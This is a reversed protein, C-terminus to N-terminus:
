CSSMSDTLTPRTPAPCIFQTYRSDDDVYRKLFAVMSSIIDSNYSKPTEHTAGAIEVYERPTTAPLGNYFPKGQNAPVSTADATGSVILTPTTITSVPATRTGAADLYYPALGIAAKFDHNEAVAGLTGGGGLSFGALAIRTPDLRGQVSPDQKLYEAAALIEKTRADSLDFPDSTDITFVIFGHSALYPGYWSIADQKNSYGPTVVVAGVTAGQTDTPYYITGGGFGQVQTPAVSSTQVAEPGLESISSATPDPDRQYSGNDTLVPLHLCTAAVMTALALVASQSGRQFIRPMTM